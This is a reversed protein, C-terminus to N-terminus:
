LNEFNVLAPGADKINVALPYFGAGVISIGASFVAVGNTVSLTAKVASVFDVGRMAAIYSTRRRELQTPTFDGNVLERIDETEHDAWPLFDRPTLIARACWELVVRPGQIIRGTLGFSGDARFTSTDRLDFVSAPTITTPAATTM